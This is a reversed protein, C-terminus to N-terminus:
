PYVIVEFMVNTMKGNALAEIPYASADYASVNIVTDSSRIASTFALNAPDLGGARIFTKAALFVASNATLRYDGEDNYSWTLSQTFDNHLVTAVPANLASQNLIARYIKPVADDTKNVMSDILDSFESETPIDGTQFYRKLATRGLESM